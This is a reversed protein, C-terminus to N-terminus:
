ACSFSFDCKLLNAIPAHGHFDSLTMPFPVTRSAM